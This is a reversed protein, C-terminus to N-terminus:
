EIRARRRHPAPVLGSRAERPPARRPRLNHKQVFAAGPLLGAAPQFRSEVLHLPKTPNCIFLLSGSLVGQERFRPFAGIKKDVLLKAPLGLCCTLRPYIDLKSRNETPRLTKGKFEIPDPSTPLPM